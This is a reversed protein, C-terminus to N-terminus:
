SVLAHPLIVSEARELSVPEDFGHSRYVARSAPPRPACGFLLIAILSSLHM